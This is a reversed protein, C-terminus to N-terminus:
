KTNLLPQNFFKVSNCDVTYVTYMCNTKPMKYSTVHKSSIIEGDEIICITFKSNRCTIFATDAVEISSVTVNNILVEGKIMEVVDNWSNYVQVGPIYEGLYPQWSKNDAKSNTVKEENYSMSMSVLTILLTVFVGKTWIVALKKKKTLMTLRKKMFSYVYCSALFLSNNRVVVSLMFEQYDSVDIKSDLVQRDALYEHNLRIERKYLWLLPNFWFVVLWLEILLTDISHRQRVHAVEHLMIENRITYNEEKNIYITNIFTYPTTLRDILVVHCGEFIYGTKNRKLRLLRIINVVYRILLITSVIAYVGAIIWKVSFPSEAQNPIIEAETYIMDIQRSIAVPYITESVSTNVDFEIFPIVASFLIGFLLYFRKFVPMNENAVFIMYLLYVVCLFITSKLIFVLM